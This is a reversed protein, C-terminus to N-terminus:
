RVKQSMAATGLKGIALARRCDECLAYQELAHSGTIAALAPIWESPFLKKTGTDLRRARTFEHLMSETVPQKVEDSLEHAVQAWGKKCGRIAKSILVRVKDEDTNM